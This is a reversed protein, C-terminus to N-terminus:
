LYKLQAFRLCVGLVVSTCNVPASGTVAFRFQNSNRNVVVGSDGGKVNVSFDGKVPQVIVGLVDCLNNPIKPQTHASITEM